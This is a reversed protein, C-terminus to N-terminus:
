NVALDALLDKAITRAGAEDRLDGQLRLNYWLISGTKADVLAAVIVNPGSSPIIGFLAGVVMTGAQVAKRGQTAVHDLGYVLFLADVDPALDRVEPGLSYSFNKIKEPFIFEPQARNYTHLFISINVADFLLYTDKLNEKGENSLAVESFPKVKWSSKSALEAELAATINKAGVQCWEEVKERVGGASVEFIEVRPQTVTVSKILIKQQDFTPDVRYNQTNGACGSLTLLPALLLLHFKM